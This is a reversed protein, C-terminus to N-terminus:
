HVPSSKRWTIITETPMMSAQLHPQLMNPTARVGKCSVKPAGSTSTAAILVCGGGPECRGVRASSSNSSGVSTTERVDMVSALMAVAAVSQTVLGLVAAVIYPGIASQSVDATVLM